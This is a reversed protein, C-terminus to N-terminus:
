SHRGDPNDVHLHPPAVGTEFSSRERDRLAGDISITVGTFVCRRIVVYVGCRGCRFEPLFGHMAAVEAPTFYRLRLARMADLLPAPTPVLPEGPQACAIVCVLGDVSNESLHAQEYHVNCPRCAPGFLLEHSTTSTRM